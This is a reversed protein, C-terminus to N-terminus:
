KIAVPLFVRGTNRLSFAISAAGSAGATVPYPGGVFRNALMTQSVKGGTVTATIRAPAIGAGSVPGNFTVQGGNVPEASNKATVTLALPSTFATGAATTQDSGEAQGLSFGQSEFAGLDCVGVRDLGRQDTNACASDLGADIAASGPLLAITQQGGGYDALSGFLPDGTLDGGGEMLTHTYVPGDTHDNHVQADTGATSNGWVISNTVQPISPAAIVPNQPNSSDVYAGNYMGGGSVNASNGTITVNKLVPNSPVTFFEEGLMMQFAGNYLGGGSDNASNGSFTVNTLTPSSGEDYIGGGLASASNGSFTVNSL